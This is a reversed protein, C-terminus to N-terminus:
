MQKDEMEDKIMKFMIIKSKKKAVREELDRIKAEMSKVNEMLQEIDREGNLKTM